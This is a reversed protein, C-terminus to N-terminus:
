GKGEIEREYLDKRQIGRQVSLYEHIMSNDKDQCCYRRKARYIHEYSIWLNLEEVLYKVIPLHSYQIALMFANNKSIHSELISPSLKKVVPLIGQQISEYLLRSHDTLIM